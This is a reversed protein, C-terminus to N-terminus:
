CMVCTNRGLLDTRQSNVDKTAREAMVGLSSKQPIINAWGGSGGVVINLCVHHKSARCGHPQQVDSSRLMSSPPPPPSFPTAKNKSLPLHRSVEAIKRRM